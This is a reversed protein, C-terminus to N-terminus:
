REALAKLLNLGDVGGLREESRREPHPMMGLVNKNPGGLVGAISKRSGNLAGHGEANTAVYSFAIRNEQELTKLVTDDAFYNGDHHAVPLQITQDKAYGSLFGESGATAKLKVVDCSFLGHDNPMLAGPLM